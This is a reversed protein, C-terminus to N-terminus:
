GCFDSLFITLNKQLETLPSFLEGTSGTVRGCDKEFFKTEYQNNWEKLAGLSYIDDSGSNVKFIGDYISSGNRGYFWGFKKNSVVSPLIKKIFNLLKDDIGEFLWQEASKTILLKEKYIDSLFKILSSAVTGYISAM